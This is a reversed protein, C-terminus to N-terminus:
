TGLIRFVDTIGDGDLDGFYMDRIPTDGASGVNRWAGFGNVTGLNIQWSGDNRRRFVDLRRDNNFHGFRMESFPTSGASGVSRWPSFGNTRRDKIQWAGNSQRVFIDSLGDGSFDGVFVNFRGGPTLGRRGQDVWRGFRFINGGMLSIRYNLDTAATATVPFNILDARRDGNLDGVFLDDIRFGSSVGVDRWLSSFRLAAQGRRGVTSVVRQMLRIQFRNNEGIRLVDTLGDGNFDAFRLDRLHRRRSAGIEKWDGLGNTNMFRVRLRGDPTRRLLDARGNGDLDVFQIANRPIAGEAVTQWSGFSFSNSLIRNTQWMRDPMRASIFNSRTPPEIEMMEWYDVFDLPGRQDDWAREWTRLFRESSERLIRMNSDAVGVEDLDQLLAPLMGIHNLGNVDFASHLAPDIQGPQRNTPPAGDNGSFGSCAITPNTRSNVFRHGLQAVLPAGIDSGFSQAVGYRNGGRDVLQAFSRSSTPCRNRVLSTPETTIHNPGTRLGVLGGLKMISLIDARTAMYEGTGKSGWGASAHAEKESQKFGNLRRVSRKSPMLDDYRTHTFILPYHNLRNQAFAIAQGRARRSIHDIDIIMRKEALASLLEQGVPKLGVPNGTQYDFSKYDRLTSVWSSPVSAFPRTVKSKIWNSLALTVGHHRAAGSFKTDTEHALGMQRVGLDYLEDLQNRWNGLNDPFLNAVEVGLVVALDGNAIIRRAEAPDLAIRFWSHQAAFAHAARVQLRVSDMDGRPTDQNRGTALFRSVWQNDVASMVILSLGNEHATRLDALSTQQHVTDLHRPWHVNALTRQPHSTMGQLGALFRGHNGNGNPMPNLFPTPFVMNGGFGFFSMMHVHIDAFGAVNRPGLTAMPRLQGQSPRELFVEYRTTGGASRGDVTVSILSNRTPELRRAISTGAAANRPIDEVRLRQREGDPSHACVKIRLKNNGIIKKFKLRARPYDYVEPLFWTRGLTGTLSGSRAAFTLRKQNNFVNIAEGFTVKEFFRNLAGKLQEKKMRDANCSNVTATRNANRSSACGLRVAVEM